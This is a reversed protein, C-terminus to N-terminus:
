EKRLARDCTCSHGPQIESFKMARTRCEPQGYPCRPAFSCGTDSMNIPSPIDSKLEIIRRTKQLDPDPLPLASILAETYPHAPYEYLKDSHTLEVLSGLYMVGIRDSIYKVLSLNHSIFILTLGLQRQLQKLLNVVQAQISVDLASTPEDCIIVRPQVALARAIGIRQRQGGSFEHPFRDAHERNLGVMKLLEIVRENREAVSNLIGYNDMGERIIERVTMRPDLSSYPDQFIMQVERHFAANEERSQAFISRGKYLIDGSTPTYLKKITRGLTTKGCGSEGVLGVTEGEMVTLSVDRVAQLTRKRSLVFFKNLHRIEILPTDM